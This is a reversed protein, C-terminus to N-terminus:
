TIRCNTVTVRVSEPRFTPVIQWNLMQFFDSRVPQYTTNSHNTTEFVFTFAAVSDTESKAASLSGVAVFAGPTPCPMRGKSFSLAIISNAIAADLHTPKAAEPVPLVVSKLFTTTSEHVPTKNDTCGIAGANAIVLSEIVLTHLM